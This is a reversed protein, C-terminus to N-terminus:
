VILDRAIYKKVIIYLFLDLFSHFPKHRFFSNSNCFVLPCSISVFCFLLCIQQNNGNALNTVLVKLVSVTHFGIPPSPLKFYQLFVLGESSNAQRPSAVKQEPPVCNDAIIFFM